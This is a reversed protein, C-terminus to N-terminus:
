RRLSEFAKVLEPDVLKEGKNYSCFSEAIYESFSDCAYGSIKPAYLSMNARLTEINSMKNIKKELSHGLEHLIVEEITAPVTGRKSQKSAEIVERVQRSARSLDYKEPHDLLDKMAQQEKLLIKEATKVDKLSKRNLLFSHRVPSYGATANTILKGLKTNSKPAIIGGFPDIDYLAFFDGITQNIINAVEVSVGDYSVGLAGFRTGDTFQKAYEEAEEITKAPIFKSIVPKKEEVTDTVTEAVKEVTNAVEEGQSIIEASVKIYRGGDAGKEVTIANVKYKTDRALLREVQPNDEVDLFDLNVGKLDKGKTDFEIVIPNEAGTFDGFREAVEKSATTSLFGKETIEKGTTRDLLAEIRQKIRQSYAGKDYAKDGYVLHRYINGFETDSINGFIARADVSRYLKDYPELPKNTAKTLQELLAEENNTLKGFDGRGRLYQNIWMGDGSVYWELAEKEADTLPEIQNITESIDEMVETATDKRARWENAKAKYMRQDNPDLAYKALRDFANARREALNGEGEVNEYAEAYAKEQETMPKPKETIGDFYTSTGDKCNPHLFGAQIASSLLPYGTTQSQYSNGLGYVDDILVKGIFPLCKSCAHNRHNVIVTSIGWENRKQAEGEMFSRKMSTRMAMEAYSSITHRAGNKYMICQIGKSLFDKTALDVAKEYTVAGTSAQLQTKFIIQRYQDDAQRLLASQAKHFEGLSASILANVRNENVRFFQDSGLRTAKYGRKIANLIKREADAGGQANANKIAEAIKDEVSQFKPIYKLNKKRYEELAQLQLVQWQEWNYGEKLEEARHRKFNKMMDDILENEIQEYIKAINYADGDSFM